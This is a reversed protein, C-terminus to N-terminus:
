QVSDSPMLNQRDTEMMGKVKVDASLSYEQSENM